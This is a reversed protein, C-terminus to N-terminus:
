AFEEVFNTIFETVDCSRSVFNAARERAAASGGERALLADLAGVPHEGPGALVLMGEDALAKTYCPRIPNVYLTSIGMVAAESATTAGETVCVASHYLLDHFDEPAIDRCLHAFEAPPQGEPVLVVDGKRLLLEVLNRKEQASIRRVGIDHSAEWSILRVIGFPKNASLGYKAPVDARPVFHRPHLYALEKVGAYRAHRRGLDSPYTQPTLIASAFPFTIRNATRATDTDTHVIRKCRVMAGAFVTFTGGTSICVQTKARRMVLLLRATHELLEIGLGAMGRRKDGIIEYKFGYADLLRMAVPMRRTTIRVDHGSRNWGTVAHRFFHVDAPHGIDVLINM